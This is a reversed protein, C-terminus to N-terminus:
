VEDEKLNGSEVLFALVVTVLSSTRALMDMRDEAVSWYPQALCNAAWGFGVVIVVFLPSVGSLVVIALLARELMLAIEWWHYREEFSGILIQVVPAHVRIGSADEEAEPEAFIRELTSQLKIPYEDIVQQYNTIENVEDKLAKKTAVTYRGLYFLPGLAYLLLLIIGVIVAATTQMNIIKMCANIGSLYGVTFLFLFINLDQAEAKTPFDEKVTQRLPVLLNIISLHVVFALSGLLLQYWVCKLLKYYDLRDDTNLAIM